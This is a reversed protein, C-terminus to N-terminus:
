YLEGFLDTSHGHFCYTNTLPLTFQILLIVEFLSLLQSHILLAMADTFVPSFHGILWFYAKIKLRKFLVWYLSAYVWSFLRVDIAGILWEITIALM